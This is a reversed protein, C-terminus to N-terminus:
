RENVNHFRGHLECECNASYFLLGNNFSCKQQYYFMQARQLRCFCGLSGPVFSRVRVPLFVFYSLTGYSNGGRQRREKWISQYCLGVKELHQECNNEFSLTRTKWRYAGVFSVIPYLREGFCRQYACDISNELFNWRLAGHVCILPDKSWDYFHKFWFSFDWENRRGHTRIELLTEKLREENNEETGKEGPTPGLAEGGGCCSNEWIVRNVPHSFPHFYRSLM